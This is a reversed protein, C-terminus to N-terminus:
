RQAVVIDGAPKLQPASNGSVLSLGAIRKQINTLSQAAAIDTDLKQIEGQLGAMQKELSHIQYGSTSLSNIQVAYAVAMIMVVAGLVIRSARGTLWAPLALSHWVMRWMSVAARFKYKVTLRLSM